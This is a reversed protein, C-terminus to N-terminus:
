VSSAQALIAIYISTKAWNHGYSHAASWYTIRNLFKTATKGIM